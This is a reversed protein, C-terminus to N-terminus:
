KPGELLFNKKEMLEYATEGRKGIQMYPMFVEQVSVMKTDVLAMQAEIWRLIQRWAVRKAQAEYSAIQGDDYVNNKRRNIFHDRIPHWRCPLRFPIQEGNVPYKFAVASVAGGEYEMLIASAGYRGLLAQIQGVTQEPPIKTTEMFLTM